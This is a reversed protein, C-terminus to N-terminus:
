FQAPTLAPIMMRQSPMASCIRNMTLRIVTAIIWRIGPSGATTIAPKKAVGVWTSPSNVPVSRARARHNYVAIVRAEAATQMTGGALIGQDRRSGLHQSIFESTDHRNFAWTDVVQEGHTNIVRIVQNPV